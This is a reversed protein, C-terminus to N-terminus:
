KSQGQQHSSPAPSVRRSTSRGGSTPQHQTRGGGSGGVKMRKFMDGIAFNRPATGKTPTERLGDNSAAQERKESRHKVEARALTRAVDEEDESSCSLGVEDVRGQYLQKPALPTAPQHDKQRPSSSPHPPLVDDEEEEVSAVDRSSGDATACDDGGVGGFGRWLVRRLKVSSSTVSGSCYGGVGSDITDDVSHAVTGGGQGRRGAPVAAANHHNLYHLNKYGNGTEVSSISACSAAGSGFPPLAGPGTDTSVPTQFDSRPSPEGDAVAATRFSDEEGDAGRTEPVGDPECSRGIGGRHAMALQHQEATDATLESVDSVSLGSLVSGGKNSNGSAVNEKDKSRRKKKRESKRARRKAKKESKKKEDAGNGGYLGRYDIGLVGSDSDGGSGGEEEEEDSEDVELTVELDEHYYMEAVGTIKTDLKTNMRMVSSLGDDLLRMSHKFPSNSSMFHATNPTIPSYQQPPSPSRSSGSNAPTAHIGHSALFPTIGTHYPKSVAASSNSVARKSSSPHPPKRPTEFVLPVVNARVAGGRSASPPPAAAVPTVVARQASPADRAGEVHDVVVTATATAGGGAALGGGFDGCGGEPPVLATTEFGDRREFETPLLRAKAPGDRYTGVNGRRPRRASGGKGDVPPPAAAASPLAGARLVGEGGPSVVGIAPRALAAGLTQDPPKGGGGDFFLGNGDNRRLLKERHRMAMAKMEENAAGGRDAALGPAEAPLLGDAAPM